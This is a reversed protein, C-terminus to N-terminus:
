RRIISVPRNRVIEATLAVAVPKSDAVPQRNRWNVLYFDIARRIHEQMPLGDAQSVETIDDRQRQTLRVNFPKALTM